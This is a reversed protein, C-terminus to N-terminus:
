EHGTLGLLEELPRRLIVVRKGLRLYPVPCREEQLMLYLHSSSIGLMQAAARVSLTASKGAHELDTPRDVVAQM